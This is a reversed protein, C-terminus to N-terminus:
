VTSGGEGLYVPGESGQHPALIDPARPVPKLAYQMSIQGKTRRDAGTFLGSGKKTFGIDLFPQGFDTNGTQCIGHLAM